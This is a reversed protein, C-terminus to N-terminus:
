RRIQAGELVQRECWLQAFQGQGTKHVRTRRSKLTRWQHSYQLGFDVPTIQGISAHRRCRNYGEEIWKGVENPGTEQDVLDEPLLVRNTALFSEAM